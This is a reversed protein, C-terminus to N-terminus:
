EVGHRVEQFRIGWWHGLIQGHEDRVPFRLATRSDGAQFVCAADEIVTTDPDEAWRTGDVVVAFLSRPDDVVLRKIQGTARRQDVAVRCRDYNEVRNHEAEADLAPLWPDARDVRAGQVIQDGYLVVQARGRDYGAAQAQKTWSAAAQSDHVALLMAIGALNAMWLLASRTLPRANM